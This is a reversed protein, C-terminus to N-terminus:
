QEAVHLFADKKWDASEAKMSRSCIIEKYGQITLIDDALLCLSKFARQHSGTGHAILSQQALRLLTSPWLM